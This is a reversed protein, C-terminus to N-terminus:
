LARGVPAYSLQYLLQSKILPDHTRTGRCGGIMDFPQYPSVRVPLFVLYGRPVVWMLNSDARHEGLFARSIGIGGREDWSRAGEALRGESRILLYIDDRIPVLPQETAQSRDYQASSGADPTGPSFCTTSVPLVSTYLRRAAYAARRWEPWSM